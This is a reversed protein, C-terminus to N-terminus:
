QEGVCVKSGHPRQESHEVQGFREEGNASDVDNITM